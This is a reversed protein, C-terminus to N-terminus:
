LFDDKEAIYKQTFGQDKLFFKELIDINHVCLYGLDYLVVKIGFDNWRM